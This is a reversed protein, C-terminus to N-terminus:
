HAPRIAARRGLRPIFRPVRRAYDAYEPFAEKLIGEEYHIRVLQLGTQLIGLAIAPAGLHLMIMGLTAVAEAVYLPHRIVGYPGNCVLRRAQPLVSFSRGLHVLCFVTALNGAALLLVSVAMASQSLPATPLYNVLTLIFGGALASVVPAWGGARRVPKLRLVALLCIMAAFVFSGLEGLFDLVTVPDSQGFLTQMR